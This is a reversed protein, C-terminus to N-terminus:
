SPHINLQIRLPPPTTDSDASEDGNVELVLWSMTEGGLTTLFITGPGSNVGIFDATSDVGFSDALREGDILRLGETRADLVVLDGVALASFGAVGDEDRVLLDKPGRAPDTRESVVGVLLTRDRSAPM